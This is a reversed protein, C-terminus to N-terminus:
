LRSVCVFVSRLVLPVKVYGDYKINTFTSRVINLQASNPAVFKGLSVQFQNMMVSILGDTSVIDAWLCGDFTVNGSQSMGVSSGGFTGDSGVLGTFTMGKITVNDLRLNADEIVMWADRGTGFQYGDLGPISTMLLVHFFGDELVCNNEVRGDIGCQIITNPAIVLKLFM